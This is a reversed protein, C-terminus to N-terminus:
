NLTIYYATGGRVMLKETNAPLASINQKSEFINFDKIVDGDTNVVIIREVKNELINLPNSYKKAFYEEIEAIFKAETQSLSSKADKTICCTNKAKKTKPNEEALATFVTFTLFFLSAIIIKSTKM